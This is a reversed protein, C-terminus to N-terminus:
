NLIVEGELPTLYPGKLSLSQPPTSATPLLAKHGKIFLYIHINIYIQMNKQRSPYICRDM